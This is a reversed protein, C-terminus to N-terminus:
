AGQVPASPAAQDGAHAPAPEQWEGLRGTAVLWRVFAVRRATPADFGYAHQALIVSTADPARNAKATAPGNTSPSM